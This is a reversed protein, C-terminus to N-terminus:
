GIRFAPAVGYTGDANYYDTYGNIIVISFINSSGSYASRLWWYSNSNNYKKIAKDQNASQTVGLNAYYDLQRTEANATDWSLNSGWVEETSLLYLKDTTTFNASDNKGHGSVVTTDIIANKLETPLANYIDSNVYTRMESYEWGGKNGDGNTTGNTFPNMRRTTIIDAFELVFGCATQSFGETSCAAPTSNNAVRLTYNEPTGDNNIDMQITKTDGPNYASTDGAQVAAIITSIDDDAFSVPTPKEGVTATSPNWVSDYADAQITEKIVTLTYKKGQISSNTSECVEKNGTTTCTTTNGVTSNLTVSNLFTSTTDDPNIIYKYYYYEGDKVWDTTNVNVIVADNPIDGLEAATLATGDTNTWVGTFKARVTAPISGENETVIEKTITEGPKWNTPSVFTETTTTKYTATTFNNTFTTVNTFYAITAGVVVFLVAVIAILAKKNKM